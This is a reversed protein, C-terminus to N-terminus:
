ALNTAISELPRSSDMLVLPTAPLEGFLRRRHSGSIAMIALLLLFINKEKFDKLAEFVHLLFGIAKIGIFSICLYVIYVYIM